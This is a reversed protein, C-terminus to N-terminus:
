LVNCLQVAAELRQIIDIECDGVSLDHTDDTLGTCSFRGQDAADIHQFRRGGSFDNDVSFIHGFMGGPFQPFFSFLDAHNELMEVQKGVSSDILVNGERQLQGIYRFFLLLFANLFHELQDAKGVLAANIPTAAEAAEKEIWISFDVKGRELTKTILNRIEMEKERYLPAIRTSLDMAKSNLSKIEVNIKKDGFTATAKGYGTMSQIM